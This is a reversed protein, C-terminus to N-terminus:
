QFLSKTSNKGERERHLADDRWFNERLKITAIACKVSSEQQLIKLKPKKTTITLLATSTHTKIDYLKNWNRM